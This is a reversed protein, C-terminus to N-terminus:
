RQFQPLQTMRYELRARGDPATAGPRGDYLDKEVYISVESRTSACGALFLITSLFWARKCM